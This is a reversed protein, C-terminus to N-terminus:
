EAAVRFDEVVLEFVLQFATQLLLSIYSISPDTENRCQRFFLAQDATHSPHDGFALDDLTHQLM